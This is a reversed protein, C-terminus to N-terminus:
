AQGVRRYLLRPNRSPLLIRSACSLVGWGQSHRRSRPSQAAARISASRSLCENQLSRRGRSLAVKAVDRETFSRCSTDHINAGKATDEGDCDADEDADAAREAARM